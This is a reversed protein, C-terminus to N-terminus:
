VNSTVESEAASICEAATQFLKRNDLSLFKYLAFVYDTEIRKAYLPFNECCLVWFLPADMLEAAEVVQQINFATRRVSLTQMTGETDGHLKRIFERNTETAAKRYRVLSKIRASPISYVSGDEARELHPDLDEVIAKLKALSADGMNDMRDILQHEHPSPMPISIGLVDRFFEQYSLGTIQLLGEIEGKAWVIRKRRLSDSNFGYRVALFNFIRNSDNESFRDLSCRFNTETDAALPYSKGYLDSYKGLGSHKRGKKFFAEGLRTMSRVDRSFLETLKDCVEKNKLKEEENM